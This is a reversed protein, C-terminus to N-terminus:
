AQLRLCPSGPRCRRPMRTVGLTKWVKQPLHSEAVVRSRGASFATASNKGQSPSATRRAATGTSMPSPPHREPGTCSLLPIAVVSVPFRLGTQGDGSTKSASPSSEYCTCIPLRAEKTPRHLHLMGHLLRRPVSSPAVGIWRPALNWEATRPTTATRRRAGQGQSHYRWPGRPAWPCM